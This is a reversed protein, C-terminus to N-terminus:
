QFDRPSRCVKSKGKEPEAEKKSRAKPKPRVAISEPMIAYFSAFVGVGFRESEIGDGREV